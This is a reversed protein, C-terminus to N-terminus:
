GSGYRALISPLPRRAVRVSGLRKQISKHPFASTAKRALAVVIAAAALRGEGVSAVAVAAAEEVAFSAVTAAETNDAKFVVVAPLSWVTLAAVAVAVLAAV